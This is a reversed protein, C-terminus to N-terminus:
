RKDIAFRPLFVFPEWNKTVVWGAGWRSPRWTTKPSTMEPSFNKASILYRVRFKLCLLWWFSQVDATYHFSDARCDRYLKSSHRVQVLWFLSFILQRRNSRKRQYTRFKRKYQGQRYLKTIFDLKKANIVDDITMILWSIYWDVASKLGRRSIYLM